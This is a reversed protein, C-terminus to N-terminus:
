GGEGFWCTGDGDGGSRMRVSDTPVHNKLSKLDRLLACIDGSAMYIENGVPTTVQYSTQCKSGMRQRRVCGLEIGAEALCARAERITVIM